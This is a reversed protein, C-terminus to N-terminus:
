SNYYQILQLAFKKGPIHKLIMERHTEEEFNDKVWKILSVFYDQRNKDHMMRDNRPNNGELFHYKVTHYEKGYVKDVSKPNKVSLMSNLDLIQEWSRLYSKKVDKAVLENFEMFKSFSQGVVPTNGIPKDKELKLIVWNCTEKNYVLPVLVFKHDLKM